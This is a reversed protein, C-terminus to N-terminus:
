VYITPITCPFLRSEKIQHALKHSSWSAKTKLEQKVSPLRQIEKIKNRSIKPNSHTGHAQWPQLCTTTEIVLPPHDPKYLLLSVAPTTFRFLFNQGLPFFTVSATFISYKQNFLPAKDHYLSPEVM